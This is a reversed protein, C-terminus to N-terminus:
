KVASGKKCKKQRKKMKSKASNGNVNRVANSNQTVSRRINIKNSAPHHNNYGRGTHEGQLRTIYYYFQGHTIPPQIHICLTYTYIINYIIYSISIYIYLYNVYKNRSYLTTRKSIKTTQMHKQMVYIYIINHLATYM